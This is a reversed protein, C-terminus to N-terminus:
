NHSGSGQASSVAQLSIAPWPLTLGTTNGRPRALSAALGDGIPDGMVPVVIPITTTAQQVARGAVSNSAVIADLNFGVLENALAPFREIESNAARVDVVV